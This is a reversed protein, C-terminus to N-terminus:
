HMARARTTKFALLPLVFRDAQQTMGPMVLLVKSQVVEVYVVTVGSLCM